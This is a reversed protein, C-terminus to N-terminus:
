RIGEFKALHSFILMERSSLLKFPQRVVPPFMVWYFSHMSFNLDIWKLGDTANIVNYGVDDIIILYCPQSSM